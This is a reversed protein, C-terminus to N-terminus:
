TVEVWRLVEWGNRKRRQAASEVNDMTGGGLRYMPVWM